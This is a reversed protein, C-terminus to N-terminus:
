SNFLNKDETPTHYCIGNFADGSSVPIGNAGTCAGMWDMFVVQNGFSLGCDTNGNTQMKTDEECNGAINTSLSFSEFAIKPKEYTKRM